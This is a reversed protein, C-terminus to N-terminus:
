DLDFPVFAKGFEVPNLTLSYVEFDGGSYRTFFKDAIEYDEGVVFDWKATESQCDIDKPDNGLMTSVNYIASSFTPFVMCPVRVYNASEGILVYAKEGM